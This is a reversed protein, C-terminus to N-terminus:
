QRAKRVDSPRRLIWFLVGHSVMFLSFLLILWFPPLAILGYSCSQLLWWAAQIATIAMDGVSIATKLGIALADAFLSFSSIILSDMRGAPGMHLGLELLVGIGSLLLVLTLILAAKHWNWGPVLLGPIAAHIRSIVRSSFEAPIEIRQVQRLGETLASESRYFDQCSRCEILHVRLSEIELANLEDGAAYRRLSELPCNM